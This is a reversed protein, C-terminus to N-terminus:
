KPGDRVRRSRMCDEFDRTGSRTVPGALGALHPAAYEGFIRTEVLSDEHVGPGLPNRYRRPTNQTFANPSETPNGVPMLWIEPMGVAKRSSTSPKEGANKRIGIPMAGGAAGNRALKESRPPIIRVATEAYRAMPVSPV